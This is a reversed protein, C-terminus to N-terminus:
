QLHGLVTLGSPHMCPMHLGQHADSILLVIHYTVYILIGFQKSRRDQGIYETSEALRYDCVVM